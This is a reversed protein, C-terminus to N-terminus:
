NNSPPSLRVQLPSPLKNLRVLLDRCQVVIENSTLPATELYLGNPLMEPNTFDVGNPHVPKEGVVLKNGANERRVEGTLYGEQALWDATNILVKRWTNASVESGSWERFGRPNLRISKQDCMEKWYWVWDISVWGDDPWLGAIHAESFLDRLYATHKETLFNKVVRERANYLILHKDIPQDERRALEMRQSSLEGEQRQEWEQYLASIAPVLQPRQEDPLSELYDSFLQHKGQESSLGIEQESIAKQLRGIRTRREEEALQREEELLNRIAEDGTSPLTLWIGAFQLSAVLVAIEPDSKAKEEFDDALEKLIPLKAVKHADIHCLDCVIDHPTSCKTELEWRRWARWAGCRCCVKGFPHDCNRCCRSAAPSISDCVQCRVIPAKEDDSEQGRPELSWERESEPLGHRDVNGALDLILCDGGDPKPRMGRGIMQMHLALSMTPRAMVVCDADPLDFGETLIDVNVLVRLAGSKFRDIMQAREADPTKSEIYGASIGADDFVAVLNQAHRVTVAYVLTQREQAHTEWYERVFGTMIYNENALEIGTATFDGASITGAKILEEESPMLVRANALHGDQQLEKIQPGCILHHFLHNFGQDKALRWPTATLGLVRGPWLNIAQEWKPATAHHAEDVVLLDHENYEDWINDFKVRKGVTQAMLIAVWNSRGPAPDRVDWPLLNTARVGAANLASYAQSSLGERHTLWVAKGGGTMWDALVASALRTKGGATPLQVMVKAHPPHLSTQAKRLLDRQYDRLEIAM